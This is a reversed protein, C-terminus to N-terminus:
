SLFGACSSRCFHPHSSQSKLQAILTPALIIEHDEGCTGVSNEANIEHHQCRFMFQHLINCAVRLPRFYVFVKRVHLAPRFYVPHSLHFLDGSCKRSGIGDIREVPALHGNPDAFIHQCPVTGARDHPNGTAVFSVM